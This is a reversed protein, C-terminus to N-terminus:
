RGRVARRMAERTGQKSRHRAERARVFVEVTQQLAQAENGTVALEEQLERTLPALRETVGKASAMLRQVARWLQLGALVLVAVAMVALALSLIVFVSM